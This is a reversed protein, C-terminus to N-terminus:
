KLVRDYGALRKRYEMKKPMTDVLPIIGEVILSDILSQMVSDRFSVLFEQAEEHKIYAEKDALTERNREQLYIYIYININDKKELKRHM